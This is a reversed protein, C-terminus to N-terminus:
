NVSPKLLALVASGPRDLQREVPCVLQRRVHYIQAAGGIIAIAGALDTLIRTSGHGDYHFVLSEGQPDGGSTFTTQSVQDHGITYVIKKVETEAGTTPDVDYVTEEL